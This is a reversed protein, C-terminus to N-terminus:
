GAIAALRLRHRERVRCSRWRPRDASSVGVIAGGRELFFGEPDVQNVPDHRRVGVSAAAGIEMANDPQFFSRLPRLFRRNGARVLPAIYVAGHPRRYRAVSGRLGAGRAAASAGFHAYPDALDLAPRTRQLPRTASRMATSGATAGAGCAICAPKCGLPHAGARFEVLRRHLHDRHDAQTDRQAARPHGFTAYALETGDYLVVRTLHNKFTSASGARLQTM